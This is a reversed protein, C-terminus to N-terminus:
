ACREGLGDPWCRGNTMADCCAWAHRRLSRRPVPVVGLKLRINAVNRRETCHSLVLQEAVELDRLGAAVLALVQRERGSLLGAAPEGGMRAPAEPRWSRDGRARWRCRM